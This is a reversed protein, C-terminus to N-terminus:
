KGIASLAATPVSLTTQYLSPNGLVELAKDLVKDKKLSQILEGKQYFYRKVIEASLLETIQDKFRDLDRDLNPTLKAELAKFEDSSEDLYGEFGAVEKLNKLLKESQRDYTFNKEKAFKKFEEYDADSLRFSEITGISPHRQAWETAFDFAVMDAVLYYMITPVKPEEVEFDPRVGGGDRVLRGKSTNFVTTLSDPIRAASGDPNKHSYDIAQICRGSPIYYKSMTVKLNGNYPLERTSQVLGKGFSRQGVLVARDMDQLAGSVIEAASASGGNILVAIPMVTDLPETATRYTRDWQKIKGKTSLVVEGKPVFMGVIQVAGDLLGGGNNRLDFVLSKIHHNKKLDEFAAKVEQASKDTFGKLYIYGISDNRVGYYTVQDVLVQKRILELTRPKKENPRQIKLIMKTNPKGKLLESVKDSTMGTLDTGDIVLLKDGAKLGALAAPMGEFPEIIYVGGDRERIFSGIGGYEGTTIFKLDGMEQEPIYETYPDLTSLMADIGTRVTKEVNVSDVYFMDVEKVLANFVDLNKSVEFRNDAQSKGEVPLLILFLLFVRILIKSRQILKDM